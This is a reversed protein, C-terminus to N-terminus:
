DSLLQARLREITAGDIGIAAAASVWGGHVENVGEVFGVVAETPAEFSALPRNALLREADPRAQIKALARAMNPQSLAYDAVISDDDVGLVGLLLAAAIGTRDKGAACHFVLPQEIPDALLDFLPVLAGGGRELMKLYGKAAPPREDSAQRAVRTEDVMPLHVRRAGVAAQRTAYRENGGGHRHGYEFAARLDVITRLGIHDRVVVVDDDTFRLADSRFVRRWRVMRGDGTVYGGLDRFNSPGALGPNREM